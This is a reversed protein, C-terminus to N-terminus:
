PTHNEELVLEALLSLQRAKISKPQFGIMNVSVVYDADKEITIKFNGDLDSFVVVGTEIILIKAGAVELGNEDIVKGCLTRQVKEKKDNDGAFASLSAVLLFIFVFYKKM